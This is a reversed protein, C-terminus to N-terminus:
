IDVCVDGDCVRLKPGDVVHLSIGLLPSRQVPSASPVLVLAGAGPVHIEVNRTSPDVIWVERVGM